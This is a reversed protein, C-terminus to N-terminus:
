IEEVTFPRTLDANDAVNLTEDETWLTPSLNFMNGPAPGFLKKYYDTAHKLLDRTGEVLVGNDNLSHVTNRQKRGNAIKHFYSTNQDGHLLWRAHSRQHWYSEEEAHINYLDVMIQTKTVVEEPTLEKKEEEQELSDLNIKLEVKRKKVHGFLNSGWGKFYRKVRKLKINLVDIPDSNSVPQKWIDAVKLLFDDNNLWNNDFKFCRRKSLVINDGTDLVLPNHDSQDRV